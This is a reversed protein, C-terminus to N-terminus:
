AQAFDEVAVNCYLPLQGTRVVWQPTDAYDFYVVNVRVLWSLLLKVYLPNASSLLHTLPVNEICRCKGSTAKYVMQSLVLWQQPHAEIRPPDLHFCRHCLNILQTKSVMLATTSM